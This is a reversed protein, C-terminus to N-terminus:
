DNYLMKRWQLRTYHDAYTCVVCFILHGYNPCRLGLRAGFARITPVLSRAGCARALRRPDSETDPPADHAGGAHDPASGRDGAIKEYIYV